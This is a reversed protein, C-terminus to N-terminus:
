ESDALDAARMDDLLAQLKEVQPDGPIIGRVHELIRAVHDYRKLRLYAGALAMQCDPDDPSFAVARRLHIAAMAWMKHQAYFDGRVMFDTANSLGRDARLLIREEKWKFDDRIKYGMLLLMVAILAIGLLSTFIMNFGPSLIMGAVALILALAASILYLYYIPKWRKYLGVFIILSYFFPATFLFFVLRPLAKLAASVVDSPVDNPLGFYVPLLAFPESKVNLAARVLRLAFQISGETPGRPVYHALYAYTLLFVLIVGSQLMGSIPLTLTTWLWVSPEELLRLRLWLNGNCTPCKRDKPATPAACYPCLYEDGFEDQPSPAVEPEPEPPRQSAFDERLMAAAPSVATRTRAVLPSEPIPVYSPPQEEKQKQVQALGKCAAENDPDLSLVNQLCIEREDLNDTVGSLWLWASVNEEDCEIARSLLERARERQGAKAAVIGESLLREAKQLYLMDMGRQAVDNDPDISLVNELCVERDDLSDVVGSLWLWAAVNEEDQEVVRMLLERAHERQGAKAAAVGQSLLDDM